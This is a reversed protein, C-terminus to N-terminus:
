LPGILRTIIRRGEFDLHQGCRAVNLQAGQFHTLYENITSDIRAISFGKQSLVQRKIRLRAAEIADLRRKEQCDGPDLLQVFNPNQDAQTRTIPGPDNTIVHHTTFIFTETLWHRAVDIGDPSRTKECLHIFGGLTGGKNDFNNMIGRVIWSQLDVKGDMIEVGIKFGRPFLNPLCEKLGRKIKVWDTTGERTVIVLLVPEPSDEDYYVGPRRRHVVDFASWNVKQEQLYNRIKDRLDTWNGRAPHSQSLPHSVLPLNFKVDDERNINDHRVVLPDKGSIDQIIKRFDAV